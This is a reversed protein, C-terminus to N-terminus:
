PARASPECQSFTMGTLKASPDRAVTSASRRQRDTALYILDAFPLACGAITVGPLGYHTFCWGSLAAGVAGGALFTAMFLGNIRSRLVPELAFIARQGFVLNASVCFDPLIAAAVVLWLSQPPHNRALDSLLFAGVAFLMALMIGLQILGREAIKGAIPPAIAGAVGALAVWAVGKQTLGFDPGSLWLPIATWFVSFASFMCNHYLARRRLITTSVFIHGM